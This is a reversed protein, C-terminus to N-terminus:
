ESPKAVRTLKLTPTKLALLHEVQEAVRWVPMNAEAAIERITASELREIVQNIDHTDRQKKVAGNRLKSPASTKVYEVIDDATLHM